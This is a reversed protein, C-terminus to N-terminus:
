YYKFIIFLVVKRFNLFLNLYYYYLPFVGAHHPRGPADEAPGSRNPYNPDDPHRAHNPFPGMSESMERFLIKIFIRSSSTTEEENLHIYSLVSWDFADSGLLHAFFKGINRIRNTEFRHITAYYVAFCEDFQEQYVTSLRCLREGSLGYMSIYTREQSCCEILMNCLEKEQGPLILKLLKHTCEEASLSSMFVLYIKRRLNVLDQDTMDVIQASGGFGPQIQANAAKDGFEDDSDPAANASGGKGDDSGDEDSVEPEDDGLIQV